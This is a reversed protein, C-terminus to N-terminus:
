VRYPSTVFADHEHGKACIRVSSDRDIFHLEVEDAGITELAERVHLTNLGIEPPDDGEYTVVMTDEIIRHSDRLSLVQGAFSMVVGRQKLRAVDLDTAAEIRALIAILEAANVTVPREVCDPMWTRSPPMEGDVLKSVINLDSSSIQLARPAVTISLIDDDKGKLIAPLKLCLPRPLIVTPFESITKTPMVCTAGWRGDLAAAVVGDESYSLQVGWLGPRNHDEDAAPTAFSLIREFESALVTIQPAPLDRFFVPLSLPDIAPLQVNTRGSKVRLRGGLEYRMEVPQDPRLAAILDALRAAPTSLSGPEIDDPLPLKGTIQSLSNTASLSLDNEGVDLRVCNFVTASSKTDAISAARKLWDALPRQDIVFKV